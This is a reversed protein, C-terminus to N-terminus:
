EYKNIKRKWIQDAQQWDNIDISTPRDPADAAYMKWYMARDNQFFAAILESNEQTRGTEFDCKYVLSPTLIIKSGNNRARYVLDFVNMNAHEYNASDVGGLFNWYETSLMLLGPAISDLSVKPAQVDPHLRVFSYEYPHTAESCNFGIGECYRMGIIDKEPDNALLLDISSDIQSNCIHCDDSVWTVFRGEAFLSSIKLARAPSGYDKIYKVKKDVQLEPPLSRPGCFILEYSYRKCGYHM